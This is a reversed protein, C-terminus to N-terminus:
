LGFKNVLIKCLDKYDLFLDWDGVYKGYQGKAINKARVIPDDDYDRGSLMKLTKDVARMKRLEVMVQDQTKQLNNINNNVGNNLIRDGIAKLVELM